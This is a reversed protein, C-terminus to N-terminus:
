YYLVHLIYVQVHVPIGDSANCLMHTHLLVALLTGDHLPVGHPLGCECAISTIIIIIYM